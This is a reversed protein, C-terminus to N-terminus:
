LEYRAASFMFNLNEYSLMVGKPLGTTGSSSLILAIDSDKCSKPKAIPQTKLLSNFNVLPITSIPTVDDFIIVYRVGKLMSLALSINKITSASCFIICPKSLNLSHVVEDLFEIINNELGRFLKVHM